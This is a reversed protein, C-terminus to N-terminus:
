REANRRGDDLKRSLGQRNGPLCIPVRTLRFPLLRAIYVNVATIFGAAPQSAAYDVCCSNICVVWRLRGM